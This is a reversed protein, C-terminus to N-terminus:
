QTTTRATWTGPLPWPHGVASAEAAELCCYDVLAVTWFPKRRVGVKELVEEELVLAVALSSGVGVPAGM